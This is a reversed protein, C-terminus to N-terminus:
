FRYLYSLKVFIQRGTMYNPSGFRRLSAPTDPDIALNEYRNNYGVYLATGPNLLYTMLIDGTLTKFRDSAFLATNPSLFYYDLIGRISLAKTFQVNLKTRSIQNNVVALGPMNLGSLGPPAALRSFYHYQELRFRQTPRWAFGINTSQTNGLFPAVGDPTSYNVGTGLTVSGYFTFAKIWNAYFSAVNTGYHFTQGKFFEYSDNHSVNFGAPGAFDMRYDLNAYRDLLHGAPDWTWTVNASPGHSLLSGGEPWFIYGAYQNLSRIGVRQVFGVPARFGAGFERYSTDYTFNRSGYSLDAFYANGSSNVLNSGILSRDSSRAAQGSFYLTPTLRLRLDVSQLRNHTAGFQHETALIGFNSDQRFVRQIRAAGTFARKGSLPSGAAALNGPARDDIALAGINWSGLKGTLRAGFQPDMVRRTFLLNLPTEFYNINEIFFPRKEPFFVEFRRNATVQPDDSEVQSFDPNVTFDLSLSDRIVIKTDMGGRFEHERQYQSPIGTALKSNSFAGYPILQINRGPSISSLGTVNGLQRLFSTQRRTIYPWFARENARTISRGLAIGWTQSEENLFRLSKFPITMSAVYGEETIRGDSYWLTDFRSDTKGGVIIGDGQIGLPNVTFYNARQTDHYTDLYVTVSDDEGIDERKSMRGRVKGPEDLCVFVVYLNKDDYSLYATTGKSVPVGDGPERQRFDSIRTYGEPNATALFEDLRPPHAARTITVSRSGPETTGASLPALTVPATPIPPNVVLTPVPFAMPAFTPLENIQALVSADINRVPLEAVEVATPATAPRPIPITAPRPPRVTSSVVPPPPVNPTRLIIVLQNSEPQFSVSASASQVLDLVVRTVRVVPAGLRVQRVISRPEDVRIDVATSFAYSNSLDVYFRDPNTLVHSEYRVPGDLQLVVRAQGPGHTARVSTLAAVRTSDQGSALATLAILGFICRGAIWM